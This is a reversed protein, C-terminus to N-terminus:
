RREEGAHASTDGGSASGSITDGGIVGQAHDATPLDVTSNGFGHSATVRLGKGDLTIM